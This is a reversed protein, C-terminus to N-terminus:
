ESVEVVALSGKSIMNMGMADGAFCRLRLYVNRGAITPECGILKGFSTTSEFAKKLEQFNEGEECWLKMEAAKRASAFRLCPARTIGDRVIVGTQKM